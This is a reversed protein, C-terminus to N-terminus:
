RRPAPLRREKQFRDKLLGADGVRGQRDEELLSELTKLLVAELPPKTLVKYVPIARLREDNFLHSNGTMFLIPVACHEVIACAADIGTGDGKLVVDMLVIDPRNELASEVAARASGAVPLVFYGHREFRNKLDLAILTEDEVILIKKANM